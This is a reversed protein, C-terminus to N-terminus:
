TEDEDELDLTLGPRLEVSEFIVTRHFGIAYGDRFWLWDGKSDKGLFNAWKPADDWSPKMQVVKQKTNKLKIEPVEFNLSVPHFEISM